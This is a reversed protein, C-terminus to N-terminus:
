NQSYKQLLELYEPHDELAQKRSRQNLRLYVKRRVTAIVSRIYYVISTVIAIVFGLVVVMGLNLLKPNQAVFALIVFLGIAAIFSYLSKKRLKKAAMKQQNITPFEGVIHVNDKNKEKADMMLEYVKGNFNYTIKWFPLYILESTMEQNLSVVQKNRSESGPLSNEMQNEALAVLHENIMKEKARTVEKAMIKLQRTNTMYADSYPVPESIYDESISASMRQELETLESTIPYLKRANGSFQGTVYSWLTVSKKTGEDTKRGIEASWSGGYKANYRVFPIYVQEFTFKNAKLIDVPTEDNNAFWEFLKMKAVDESRKFPVITEAEVVANEAEFKKKEDFSSQCFECIFTQKEINFTIPSGCNPCTEGQKNKQNIEEQAQDLNVLCHPCEKADPDSITGGCKPCNKSVFTESM